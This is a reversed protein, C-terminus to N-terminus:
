RSHTPVAGGKSRADYEMVFVEEGADAVLTSGTATFGERSLGGLLQLESEAIRVIMGTRRPITLRSKLFGVLAHIVDNMAETNAANLKVIDIRTENKAYVAYGAVAGHYEAVICQLRKAEFADFFNTESWPVVQTANELQVVVDLDPRGMCRVRIDHKQSM